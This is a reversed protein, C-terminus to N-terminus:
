HNVVLRKHTTIAKGESDVSTLIVIYSGNALNATNYETTYDGAELNNDVVTEVIQGLMDYMKISVHTSNQLNYNVYFTGNTPNPYMVFDNNVNSEITMESEEDDLKFSSSSGSTTSTGSGITLLAANSYKYVSSCSSNLRCRFKKNQYTSIVDVVLENTNAGAITTNDVLNTWTTGLTNIQWQYNCNTPNSVQVGFYAVSNLPTFVNIPQSTVVPSSTVRLLSSPSNVSNCSSSVTCRYLYKDFSLVVSKVVLSPTQAGAYKLGNVVNTWSSGNNTSLQWQYTVGSLNSSATLTTTQGSCLNTLTRTISAKLFDCSEEAIVKLCLDYKQATNAGIATWSTGSTSIWCKGTEIVANQTYGSINAEAPLPTFSTPNSIKLKVYYNSGATINIEKSLKLTYFGAYQFTKASVTGLLGSFSSGTFNSYIEASINSNPAVAYTAIQKLIQNTTATFKVVGYSTKAGGISRNWGLDDYGNYIQKPNYDERNVWITPDMSGKKDHYSLYFFGADGWGAGWSNKIIWAGKGLPTTITDNWGVILVAHNNAISSDKTMCYVRRSSNYYKSNWFFTNYVAGYNYVANKIDTVSKNPLYWAETVNAVPTIGIPCGTASNAAYPDQAEPVPGKGRSFYATAMTRNGGECPGYTFNHCHKLNDESLDFEGLGLRKWRSELAGMSPFLWCSGCAAQNKVVTIGNTLRMDYVLPMATTKLTPNVVYNSYDPSVPEEVLGFYEYQPNVMLEAKNQFASQSLHSQAFFLTSFSTSLILLQIKKM